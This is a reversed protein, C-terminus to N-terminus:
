KSKGAAKAYAGSAGAARPHFFNSFFGKTECSKKSM